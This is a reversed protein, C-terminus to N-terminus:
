AAGGIEAGGAGAGAWGDPRWTSPRRRYTEVRVHRRLQEVGAGGGAVTLVVGAGGTRALVLADVPTSAIGLLIYGHELLHWLASRFQRVRDVDDVLLLVCLEPQNTM